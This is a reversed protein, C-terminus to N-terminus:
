KQRGSVEDMKMKIINGMGTVNAGVHHNSSEGGQGAKFLERKSELGRSRARVLCASTWRGRCARNEGNECPKPELPGGFIQLIKHGADIGRSEVVEPYVEEIIDYEVCWM